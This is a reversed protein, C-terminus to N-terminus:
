YLLKVGFLSNIIHKKKDGGGEGLPVFHELTKVLDALIIIYCERDKKYNEKERDRKRKLDRERTSM